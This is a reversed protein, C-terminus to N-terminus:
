NYLKGKKKWFLILILGFVMGGLHAFHAVSDGSFNNVGLFLEVLVYFAVFYPARIPVPFFLLMMRANPFLMAFVLLIGFISGSAGITIPQNLVMEKLRFLDGIPIVTNENVNLYPMLLSIDKTNYETFANVVPVFDITWMIEQTIRSWNWGCFLFDFVNQKGMNTRYRERVDM